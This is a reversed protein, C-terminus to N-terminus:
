RGGYGVSFNCQKNECETGAAVVADLYSGGSQFKLTAIYPCSLVNCPVSIGPM